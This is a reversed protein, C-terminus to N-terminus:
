NLNLIDLIDSIEYNERIIEQKKKRALLLRVIYTDWRFMYFLDEFV